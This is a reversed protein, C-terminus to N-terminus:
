LRRSDSQLWRGFADDYTKAVVAWDFRKASVALEAAANDSEERNLLSWRLRRELGAQDHYLCLDHFRQPIIEPYSLRDPLIPFTRCAIAELISTGFYEHFATSITLRAQWLLKRYTAEDAYGEHVILSSLRRRAEDFDAPRRRFNMGCLALRFPIGEDAMRYLARFFEAPNKDYEWRQNWIILPAEESEPAREEQMLANLELGIPLISSKDRLMSVTELENYEPFHKLFGPLSEFFTRRHFRSNFHIEDAAAMSAVNIFAYHLDREGKQRRMPGESDGDPLPYTLQNEHMYLLAPTDSTIRRTLALFSTLDLMDTTVILDPAIGSKLFVRALTLAGGHMRWKWFRAPLTLTEVDYRSERTYGEAWSQHSGGHYPSVLLITM